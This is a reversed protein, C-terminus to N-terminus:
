VFPEGGSTDEPTHEVPGFDIEPGYQEMQRLHWDGTIMMALATWTIFSRKAAPRLTAAAVAGPHAGTAGARAEISSM